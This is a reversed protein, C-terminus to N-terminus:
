LVIFLYLVERVLRLMSEMYNGECVVTSLYRTCMYFLILQVSFLWPYFPLKICETNHSPLNWNGKM